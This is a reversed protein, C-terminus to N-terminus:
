EKILIRQDEILALLDSIASRWGAAEFEFRDKESYMNELLAWTGPNTQARNIDTTPRGAGILGKLRSIEAEAWSIRERPSWLQWSEEHDLDANLSELESEFSPISLKVSLDHPDQALIAKDRAILLQVQEIHSRLVEIRSHTPNNM